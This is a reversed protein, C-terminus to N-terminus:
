VSYQLFLLTNKIFNVIPQFSKNFYIKHLDFIQKNEFFM